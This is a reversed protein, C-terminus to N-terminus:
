RWLLVSRAWLVVPVLVLCAGPLAAWCSDGADVFPYFQFLSGVMGAAVCAVAGVAGIACVAAMDSARFRRTRYRTRAGPVGYARARMSESRIAGDEMSWGVLVSVARIRDRLAERWPLRGERCAGQVALVDGGRRLMQPVLRMVQSIMLSVTPMAGAMLGIAADASLCEGAAAFWLVVASMMAGATLGYCFSELGVTFPGVALLTGAQSSSYGSNIAAIVLWFPVLWRLVSLTERGGRVLLSCALAGVLAVAVCAPNMSVMTFVLACAFFVAAVAAHYPSFANEAM